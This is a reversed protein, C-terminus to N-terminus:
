YNSIGIILFMVTNTIHQIAKYRVSCPIISTSRYVTGYQVIKISKYVTNSYQYKHTGYQVIKISNYLVTTQTGGPMEITQITSEALFPTLLKYAYEVM